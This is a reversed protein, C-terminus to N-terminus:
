EEDFIQVVRDGKKVYSEEESLPPPYTNEDVRLTEVVKRPPENGFAALGGSFINYLAGGSIYEVRYTRCITLREQIEVARVRVKERDLTGLFEGTEPDIIETPENALVKFKADEEVGNRSGINIVLERENLVAAVKGLLAEKNNVVM